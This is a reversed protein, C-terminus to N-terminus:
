LFREALAICAKHGILFFEHLSCRIEAADAEASLVPLRIVTHFNEAGHYHGSSDDKKKDAHDSEEAIHAVLHVTAATIAMRLTLPAEVTSTMSTIHRETIATAMGATIKPVIAAHIM